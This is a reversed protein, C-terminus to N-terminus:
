LIRNDIPINDKIVVIKVTTSHWGIGLGLFSMLVTLTVSDADTKGSISLWTFTKAKEMEAGIAEGIASGPNTISRNM